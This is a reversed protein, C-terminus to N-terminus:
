ADWTMYLRGDHDMEVHTLTADAPLKSALAVLDAPLIPQGISAAVTADNERQIEIDM